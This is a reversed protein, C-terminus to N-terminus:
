RIRAKEGVPPVADGKEKREPDVAPKQLPHNWALLADLRTRLLADAAAEGNKAVKIFRTTVM